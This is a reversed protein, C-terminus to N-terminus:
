GHNKEIKNSKKGNCPSCMTQLNRLCTTGRKARPIIHDKTMLIEEGKENVAYLNLHYTDKKDSPHKELAFYKGEIGCKVCKVGKTAFLQYRISYMKVMQGFYEKQLKPNTKFERRLIRPDGLVVFPLVDGLPVIGVRVYRQKKDSETIM